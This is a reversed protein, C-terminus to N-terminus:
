RGDDAGTDPIAIRAITGRGPTSQLLLNGGHAEALRRALPLGLGTGHAKTTAFPQLAQATQEATMGPGDDAVSFCLGTGTRECAVSVTGGDSVADLANGVLNGIMQGFRLTDVEVAGGSREDVVIRKHEDAARALLPALAERLLDAATIRRRELLLPRGLDLFDTVVRNVRDAESRLLGILERYEAREAEPLTFERDLRQALMQLTNLPSRVEHAVTAALQGIAQWHRQEEDSRALAAAHELRRREGRELVLSVAITLVVLLVAVVVLALLHLDLRERVAELPAADVAIRLVAVTGDPLHFPAAGEVVPTGALNTNRFEMHSTAARQAQKFFDDVPLRVLAAAHPSAAIIGQEDQITAFVVGSSEASALLRGLGLQRRLATLASADRCLLADASSIPHLTCYLGSDAAPGDDVITDVGAERVHELLARRQSPPVPGWHGASATTGGDIAWVAVEHDAIAAALDAGRRPELDAGIMSLQREETQYLRDIAATGQRASEQVLRTVDAVHQEFSRGVDALAARQQLRATVVVALALLLAIAPAIWFRVTM